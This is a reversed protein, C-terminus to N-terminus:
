SRPLVGFITGYGVALEQAFEGDSLDSACRVLMKWHATWVSTADDSELQLDRVHSNEHVGSNRIARVPKEVSQVRTTGRQKLQDYGDIDTNRM